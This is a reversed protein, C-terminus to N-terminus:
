DGFKEINDYVLKVVITFIHDKARDREPLQEYPVLCPHTKAGADKYPGYVWGDEWKGLCWREHSQEPTDGAIVGHVGDLVSKRMEYPADRWPPIIQSISMGFARCAEHAAEACLEIYREKM